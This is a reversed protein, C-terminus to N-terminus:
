YNAVQKNLWRDEEQNLDDNSIVNGDCIDKESNMLMQKQGDTTTFTSKSVDVSGILQDIKELLSVDRISILKDIL